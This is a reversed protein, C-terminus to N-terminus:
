SITLAQGPAPKPTVLSLSATPPTPGPTPTPGGGKPEEPAEFSLNDIGIPPSNVPARITFYSIQQGATAVAIHRWSGSSAEAEAGAVQQGASNYAILHVEVPPLSSLNSVEVSVTGRPHGLLAGFTGTYPPGALPCTPLIAYNPPSAAKIGKGEEEVTPSGCNGEQEKPPSAQGFDQAFGLRLGQAEYQNTVVEGGKLTDFSVVTESALASSPSAFVAVAALALAVLGTRNLARRSLCRLLGWGAM